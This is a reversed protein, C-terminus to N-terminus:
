ATVIEVSFPDAESTETASVTCGDVWFAVNVVPHASPPLVAVQVMLETDSVM